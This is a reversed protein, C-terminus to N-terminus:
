LKDGAISIYKSILVPKLNYFLDEWSKTSAIHLNRETQCDYGTKESNCSYLIYIQTSPM